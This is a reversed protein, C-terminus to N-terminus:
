VSGAIGDSYISAHLPQEPSIHLGTNLPLPLREDLIIAAEYHIKSQRINAIRCRQVCGGMITSAYPIDLRLRVYCGPKLMVESRILLGGEANINVLEVEQGAALKMVGHPVAKEAPIRPSARRERVIPRAPKANTMAVKEGPSSKSCNNMYKTLDANERITNAAKQPYLKIEKTILYAAAVLRIGTSPSRRQPVPTWTILDVMHTGHPFQHAGNQQHQDIAERAEAFGTKKM